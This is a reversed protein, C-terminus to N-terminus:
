IIVKGSAGLKRSPLSLMTLRLWDFVSLKLLFSVEVVQPQSFLLIFGFFEFMIVTKIALIVSLIM